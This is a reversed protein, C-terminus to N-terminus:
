GAEGIDRLVLQRLEPTVQPTVGFWRAFGPAAQHLLMGLGDVTRLSRQAAAKLMPTSLPIYVIDSVVTAPDCGSLDIDLPPYGIMGLSTTNVILKAKVTEAAMDKWAATGIRARDYMTLYEAKELTRNIVTIRMDPYLLLGAVVARAAGGAGIVLADHIDGHWDPGLTQDLSAKFGSIDTNDGHLEDGEMWLTNVAKLRRARETLIDAAEFAVDKHPMTVNGGVYDGTRLRAIFEEFKQPLVDVAEYSGEIGHRKLWYNHIVPSRSQAIPHGIVFAKPTKTM